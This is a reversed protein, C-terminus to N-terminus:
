YRTLCRLFTVILASCIDLLGDQVVNRVAM